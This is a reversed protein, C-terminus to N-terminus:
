VIWWNSGDSILTISEYQTKLARTAAGDITEASNGDITVVNATSDTKKCNIEHGTWSAAAPLTLTIAGGSASCLALDRGTSTLTISGTSSYSTVTFAMDSIGGGGGAGLPGTEAGADDKYYLGDTKAYLRWKGTGPTGPATDELWDIYSGGTLAGDVILLNQIAAGYSAADSSNTIAHLGIGTGTMASATAIVGYSAANTTQGLVGGTGAASTFGTIGHTTSSSIDLSDGATAPSLVTGARGWYQTPLESPQAYGLTVQGSGDDTLSGNPVVITSVPIVNPASDAERVRLNVTTIPDGPTIGGQDTSVTGGSGSGPRVPFWGRSHVARVPAIKTMKHWYKKFIRSLKGRDHPALKQVQRPRSSM